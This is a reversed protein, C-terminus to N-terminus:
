GGDGEGRRQAVRQGTRRVGEVGHPVQETRRPLERERAVLRGRGEPTRRAPRRQLGQDPQEQQLGLDVPGVGVPRERPQDVGEHGAAHEDAGAALYTSEEVAARVGVVVVVPPDDAVQRRTEVALHDPDGGVVHESDAGCGGRERLQGQALRDRAGEVEAGAAPHLGQM